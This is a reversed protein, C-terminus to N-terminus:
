KLIYLASNAYRATQPRTTQAMDNSYGASPTMPRLCIALGRSSSPLTNKWVPFVSFVENAKVIGNNLMVIGLNNPALVAGAVLMPPRMNKRLHVKTENQDVCFVMM